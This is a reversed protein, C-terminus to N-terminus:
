DSNDNPTAARHLTGVACNSFADVMLKCTLARSPNDKLCKIVNERETACSDTLPKHSVLKSKLAAITQKSNEAQQKEISDLQEQVNSYVENAVVALHKHIQATAEQKGREYAKREIEIVYDESTSELINEGNIVRVGFYGDPATESANTAATIPVGSVTQKAEAQGM